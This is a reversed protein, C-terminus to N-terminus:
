TRSHYIWWDLHREDLLLLSMCWFHIAPPFLHCQFWTSSTPITRFNWITNSKSRLTFRSEIPRWLVSYKCEWLYCDTPVLIIALLSHELVKRVTLLPRVIRVDKSKKYVHEMGKLGHIGSNRYFRCGDFLLLFFVEHPFNWSSWWCSSCGTNYECAERQLGERDTPIPESSGRTGCSESRSCVLGSSFFWNQFICGMPDDWDCTRYELVRVVQACVRSWLHERYSYFYSNMWSFWVKDWNTTWRSLWLSIRTKFGNLHWIVYHLVIPVEQFQM